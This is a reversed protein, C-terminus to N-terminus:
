NAVNYSSPSGSPVTVGEYLTSTSVFNRIRDVTTSGTSGYPSYFIIESTSAEGLPFSGDNGYTADRIQSVFNSAASQAQDIANLANPNTTSNTFIIRLLYTIGIIVVGFIAITVLMEILTFGRKNKM